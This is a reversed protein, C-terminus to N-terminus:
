LLEGGPLPTRSWDTLHEPEASNRKAASGVIRQRIRQLTAMRENISKGERMDIKLLVAEHVYEEWGNRFDFSDADLALSTFLPEYTLRLTYAGDPVPWLRLTGPATGGHLMYAEPVGRGQYDYSQILSIRRLPTHHDTAVQRDLARLEYFDAPLNVTQAGAVTTVTGTKDYFGQFQDTVLDYLDAIAENVWATLFSNTYTTSNDYEGKARIEDCLQDLTKSPM